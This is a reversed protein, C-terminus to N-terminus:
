GKFVLAQADTIVSENLFFNFVSVYLRFSKTVSNIFNGLDVECKTLQDKAM